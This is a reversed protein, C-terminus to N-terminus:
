FNMATVIAQSNTIQVQGTLVRNKFSIFFVRAAIVDPVTLAQKIFQARIFELPPNKGLIQNWYPIGLTLDYYCEGIFTRIASAADQAQAYPQSAMAINGSSDLAL